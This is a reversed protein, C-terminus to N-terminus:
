ANNNRNEKSLEEALRAMIDVACPLAIGNGAMRYIASDSGEVGDTWWDPLGQLRICELPTLRRVIYKNPTDTEVLVAQQDHMCNLAGSVGGWSQNPQGNGFCMVYRQARGAENESIFTENMNDETDM